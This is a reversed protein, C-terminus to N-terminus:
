FRCSQQVVGAPKGRCRVPQLLGTSQQNTMPYEIAIQHGYSLWLWQVAM